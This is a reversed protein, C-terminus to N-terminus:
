SYITRTKQIPLTVKPLFLFQESWFDNLIKRTKAVMIVEQIFDDDTQTSTTCMVVEETQTGVTCTTM